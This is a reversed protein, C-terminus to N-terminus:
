TFNPEFMAGICSADPKETPHDLFANEIDIPCPNFTQLDHGLGPFLFFFSRSLTQAALMGSAPPTVPDYEGEMLLTPISSTVPKKQVASVPKVNWSQCVRYYGQLSALMGAQLEPAMVHVSAALAQPTTYAMDESCVVSYFMGMSMPLYLGKSYLLTLQTYDQHSIQFIVGPLQPILNTNLMASFLWQMLDNGTLQVPTKSNATLFTIPKKNLDTVLRYFVTQLHPYSANCSPETACGKFLMDFAHQFLAARDDAFVNVQPPGVSRLVVSRLDAPYLRMVTLALRTGYSDGELNVQQYGLARVLDHVDAANELTTYANLNIGEKVLRDHCAQVTENAQCNLSPQSSGVGRQDLLILDRGPAFYALSNANILPGATVLLPVGPGGGLVLLPDPAPYPNPTKFIAVALRLTMGNPQSHDEPVTLFGCRVDKGEVLGQGLTFPCHVQQLASSAQRPLSSVARFVGYGGALVVLVVLAVLLLRRHHRPTPRREMLPTGTSSPANQPVRPPSSLTSGDSSRDQEHAATTPPAGNDSFPDDNKM